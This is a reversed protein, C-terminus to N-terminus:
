ERWSVTATGGDSSTVVIRSEAKRSTSIGADVRLLLPRRCASCTPWRSGERRDAVTVTM